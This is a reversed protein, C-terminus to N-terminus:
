DPDDPRFNLILPWVLYGGIGAFVYAWATNGAGYEVGAWVLPAAILLYRRWAPRYFPHRPDILRM